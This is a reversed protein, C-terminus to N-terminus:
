CRNKRRLGLCDRDNRRQPFLEMTMRTVMRRFQPADPSASGELTGHSLSLPVTDRCFYMRVTIDEGPGRTPPAGKGACPADYWGNKAEDPNLAVVVHYRPNHAGRPRETFVTKPTFPLPQWWNVPQMATLVADHAAGTSTTKFPNGAIVTRFTKNAAAAKFESFRYARDQVVSYVDGEGACGGLTILIVFVPCVFRQM